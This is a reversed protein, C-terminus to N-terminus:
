EDFKIRGGKVNIDWMPGFGGIEILGFVIIVILGATIVIMQCFDNWITAKMGGQEITCM